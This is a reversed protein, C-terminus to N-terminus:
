QEALWGTLSRFDGRAVAAPIEPRAQRAAAYLQAATMAGLTYSPFYGWAGAFWHIDQLCGERDNPPRIGLLEQMGDSWAGPLDNLGLEGAILAKELRYRLIVHSPYCVEDAEIRIFGPQVRAYLRRLNDAAWAAPDGGFAERLLPALFGLFEASRCVQM